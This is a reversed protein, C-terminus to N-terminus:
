LISKFLLVCKHLESLFSPHFRYLYVQTTRIMKLDLSCLPHQQTASLFIAFDFKPPLVPVRFMWWKKSDACVVARYYFVWKKIVSLVMSIADLYCRAPITPQWRLSHILLKNLLYNNEIYGNGIYFFMVLKTLAGLVLRPFFTPLHMKQSSRKLLFFKCASIRADFLHFM